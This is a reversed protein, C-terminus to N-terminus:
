FRVHHLGIMSTKGKGQRIPHRLMHAFYICHHWAKGPRGPRVHKKLILKDADEFRGEEIARISPVNKMHIALAEGAYEHQTLGIYSDDFYFPTAPLYNQQDTHDLVELASASSSYYDVDLAVFGLPSDHSLTEAFAPITQAVDGVILRANQPLAEQMAKFDPMKLQGEQWLEPHDVWGIAEPMGAGTDFWVVEIRLDYVAGVVAALSALNFLGQGQWVGLEIARFGPVGMAKAQAAATMLPFAYYARELFDDRM